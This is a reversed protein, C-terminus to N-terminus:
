DKKWIDPVVADAPKEPPNALHEIFKDVDPKAIRLLVSAKTGEAFVGIKKFIETEWTAIAPSGEGAYHAVIRGLVGKDKAKILDDRIANARFAQDVHLFVEAQYERSESLLRVRFEKASDLHVLSKLEPDAEVHERILKTVSPPIEGLGWLAASFEFEGLRAKWKENSLINPAKGQMVDLCKTVYGEVRGFVMLRPSPFAFNFDVSKKPDKVTAAGIMSYVAVGNHSKEKFEPPDALYRGAMFKHFGGVLAAPSAFDGVAIVLARKMPDDMDYDGHSAVILKDIKDLPNMALSDTFEQWWSKRAADELIANKAKDYFTLGRVKTMEVFFIQSQTGDLALHPSTEILGVTPAAGPGASGGNGCSSIFLGGGLSGLLLAFFVAAKRAPKM